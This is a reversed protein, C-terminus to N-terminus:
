MQRGLGAATIGGIVIGVDVNPQVIPLQADGDTQAVKTGLLLISVLFGPYRQKGGGLILRFSALAIAHFLRKSGGLLFVAKASTTIQSQGPIPDPRKEGQQHVVALPDDLPQRPDGEAPLGFPTSRLREFGHERRKRPGLADVPRTSAGLATWPSLITSM